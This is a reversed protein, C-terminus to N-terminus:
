HISMISDMISSKGIYYYVMFNGHYDMTLITCFPYVNTFIKQIIIIPHYFWTVWFPKMIPCPRVVTTWHVARNSPWSSFVRQLRDGWFRRHWASCLGLATIVEIPDLQVIKLATVLSPLRTEMEHWFMDFCMLARKTMGGNVPVELFSM